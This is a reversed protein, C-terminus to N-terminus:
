ELAVVKLAEGERQLQLRQGEGLSLEPGIATLVWEGPLAARIRQLREVAAPELTFDTKLRQPTYRARWTAGLDSFVADFDGSQVSALFHEVLTRAQQEEDRAVVPAPAEIVRWGTAGSELALGETPQGDAAKLAAEARQHRVVPDRYREVFRDHDLSTSLAWAEELRGQELARAYARMTDEAVSPLHVCAAVCFGLAALFTKSSNVPTRSRLM